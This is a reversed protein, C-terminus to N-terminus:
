ERRVKVGLGWVWGGGREGGGEGGGVLEEEAVGAVLFVGVAEAGVVVEVSADALEAAVLEDGIGAFGVEDKLEVVLDVEALGDGAVVGAAGDALETDDEDVGVGVGDEPREGFAGVVGDELGVAVFVEVLGDGGEDGVEGGEGLRLWGVVFGADGVAEGEM